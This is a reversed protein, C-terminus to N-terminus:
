NKNTKRRRITMFTEIIDDENVKFFIDREIFTVLCDDLLGDGMRNRLKSKVLSMACFVREVSATAVPLLLVLKLLLYVLDYVKHKKTEVLKISLDVLNDIGKFSDDRRMDDIYNDLEIELRILDTSSIDNAYFEVIRHVKDADFSAFSDALNLTSMCSLLEMNVEDFQNDLEQNIQDIVGIYVERRFHDDNTQNRAFWTSRGYPVYNGEM